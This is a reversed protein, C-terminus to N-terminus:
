GSPLLRSSGGWWGACETVLDGPARSSLTDRFHGGRDDRDCSQNRAQRGGLGTGSGDCEGRGAYIWGTSKETYINYIRILRGLCDGFGLDESSSLTAVHPLTLM